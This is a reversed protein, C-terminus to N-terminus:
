GGEGAARALQERVREAIARGLTRQAAATLHVGDVGDCRVVQGADFFGCGAAAAVQAYAAALGAGREEAGEYLRRAARILKGFPPPAILLVAPAPYTLWMTGFLNASVQVTDILRGAGLAVRLASRGFQPKLDNAGLMLVVLGLPLHAALSAPLAALGNTGVGPLQPALPAGVDPTRGLMADAVVGFGPGVGAARVDPWRDAAPFREAPIFTAQPVWGWSLSDGFVLIRRSSAAPDPEDRGFIM